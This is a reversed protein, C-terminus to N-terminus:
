VNDKTRIPMIIQTIDDHELIWPSLEDKGRLQMSGKFNKICYMLISINFAVTKDMSNGIEGPVTLFTPEPLKMKKDKKLQEQLEKSLPEQVSLDFGNIRVVNTCKKAIPHLTKLRKFFDVSDFEIRHDPTKTPLVHKYNPFHGQITKSTIIWNGITIKVLPHNLNNVQFTILNNKLENQKLEKDKSIIRHLIDMTQVPVIFDKDSGTNIHIDTLALSFGNTAIMKNDSSFHVGQLYQKTEDLSIHPKLTKYDQKFKERKVTLSRVPDNFYEVAPYNNVDYTKINSLDPKVISFKDKLDDANLLTHKDEGTDTLYQTTAVLNNTLLENPTVLVSDFMMTSPNTGFGTTKMNKHPQTVDCFLKLQEIKM